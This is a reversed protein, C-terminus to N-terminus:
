EVRLHEERPLSNDVTVRYRRGGDSGLIGGILAVKRIHHVDSMRPALYGAARWPGQGLPGGAKEGM